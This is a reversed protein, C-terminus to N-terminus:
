YYVIKNKLLSIAMHFDGKTQILANLLDNLNIDKLFPNINKLFQNNFFKKIIQKYKTIKSLDITKLIVNSNKNYKMKKEKIIKLFPFNDFLTTGYNEVKIKEEIKNNNEKNEENVKNIQHYVNVKTKYEEKRRKEIMDNEIEKIRMFESKSEFKHFNHKHGVKEKCEKCLYIPCQPCYYITFLIPYYGCQSCKYDFVKDNIDDNNNDKLNLNNNIREDKGFYENKINILKNINYDKDIINNVQEIQEKYDLANDILADPDVKADEKIEIILSDVTKEKVQQFFLNYDGQNSILINDGDDDYYNLVLSNIQDEEIKVIHCINKILSNFDSNIEIDIEEGYFNLKIKFKENGKEKEERNM